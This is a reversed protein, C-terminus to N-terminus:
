GGAFREVIARIAARDLPAQDISNHIGIAEALADLSRATLPDFFQGPAARSSGMWQHMVASVPPHRPAFAYLVNSLLLTRPEWLSGCPFM